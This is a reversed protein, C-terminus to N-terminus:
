PTAKTISDQVATLAIFAGQPVTAGDFMGHALTWVGVMHLLDPSRTDSLIDIGDAQRPDRCSSVLFTGQVRM